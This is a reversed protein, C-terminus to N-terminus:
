GVGRVAASDVWWEVREPDVRAAPYREKRDPAHHVSALREAKSEGTVLFSVCAAANLVPFTLTIRAQKSE